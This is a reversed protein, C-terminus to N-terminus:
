NGDTFVIYSRHNPWDGPNVYLGSKGPRAVEEVVPAHAHGCLVIEAKGAHILCYAHERVFHAEPGEAPKEARTQTRSRHSMFQAIAMATDPHVRRFPMAVPNCAIRKFFFYGHGKPKIMAM